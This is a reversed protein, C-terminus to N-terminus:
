IGVGEAVCLRPATMKAYASRATPHLRSEVALGDAVLVDHRELQVAWVTQSVNVLDWFLTAGNVM